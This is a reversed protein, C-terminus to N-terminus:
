KEELASVRADLKKILEAQSNIINQQEQIAKVAVVSLGSYNVAKFGEKESVLLPFLVELEQAIVGLSRKANIDNDIYRYTAPKVRIIKDLTNEVYKIDEKLRRDSTTMYAGDTDQIYAKLADNYLFGFDSDNYHYLDWTHGTTMHEFTVGGASSSTSTQKIHLTSTPSGDGGIRIQGDSDLAFTSSTGVASGTGMKVQGNDDLGFSYNSGGSQFAISCEKSNGHSLMIQTRDLSSAPEMVHLKASPSSTGIGMEGDSTITIKASNGLHNFSNAIKFKDGDANDIGMSWSQGIVSFGLAANGGSGQNIDVQSGKTNDSYDIRLAVNANNGNNIYLKGDIEGNGEVDLNQAQLCIAGFGLLLFMITCRVHRLNLSNFNKM